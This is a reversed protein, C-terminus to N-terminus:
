AANKEKVTISITAGLLSLYELLMEVSVKSIKGNLLESIRPQPKKLIEELGKPSYKNRRIIKLIHDYLQAKIILTETAAPSLGLDNLVSGRSIKPKNKM